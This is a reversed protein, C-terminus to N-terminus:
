NVGRLHWHEKWNINSGTQSMQFTKTESIISDISKLPLSPYGYAVVSSHSLFFFPLFFAGLELEELSSSSSYSSFSSSLSLSFSSWAEV